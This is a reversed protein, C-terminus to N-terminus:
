GIFNKILCLILWNLPYYAYFLYRPWFRMLFKSKKLWNSASNVALIVFGSLGAALQILYFVSSQGSSVKIFCYTAVAMLVLFPQLYRDQCYYYIAGIALIMWGAEIDVLLYLPILLIKLWIPGKTLVIIGLFNFIINFTTQETTLCFVVQSVVALILLRGIYQSLSKTNKLGMVILYAFIPAAIRGVIRFWAVGPFLFHGIHDITMSAIALLKLLNVAPNIRDPIDVVSQKTQRQM